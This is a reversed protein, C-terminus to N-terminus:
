QYGDSPRQSTDVVIGAGAHQEVFRGCRQGGMIALTHEVGQPMQRVRTVANEEHGVVDVFQQRDCVSDGHQAVSVQDM